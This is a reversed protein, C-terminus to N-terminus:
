NVIFSYVNVRERGVSNFNTIQNVFEKIHTGRISAEVKSAYDKLSLSAHIVNKSCSERVREVLNFNAIQNVLEKNNTEASAQKSKQHM